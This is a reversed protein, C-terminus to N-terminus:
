RKVKKAVPKSPKAASKKPAAKSQKKAAVTGGGERQADYLTLTWPGVCRGGQDAVTQTELTKALTVM